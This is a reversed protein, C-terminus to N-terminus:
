HFPCHLAPCLLIYFWGHLYPCPTNQTLCLSTVVSVVVVEIVVLGLVIVGCGVVVALWLEYIVVLLVVVLVEGGARIGGYVKGVAYCGCSWVVVVVVLVM